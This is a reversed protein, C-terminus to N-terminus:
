GEIEVAYEGWAHKVAARMIERRAEADDRANSTVRYGGEDLCLTMVGDIREFTYEVSAASLLRDFANELSLGRALRDHEREENLWYLSYPGIMDAIFGLPPTPCTEM